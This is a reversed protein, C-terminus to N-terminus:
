KKDTLLWKIEDLQKEIGKLTGNDKSSNSFAMYILLLIMEMPIGFNNRNENQMRSIDEPSYEKQMRLIDEINYKNEEQEKNEKM